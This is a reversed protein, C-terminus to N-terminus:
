GYDDYEVILGDRITYVSCLELTVTEGKAAFGPVDAEFTAEWTHEIVVNEGAVFKRRISHFHKDPAIGEFQRLIELMAEKGSLDVGRNHHRTKLDPSFLEGLADLDNANYASIFGEAVALQDAYSAVQLRRTKDRARGRAALRDLWLRAM